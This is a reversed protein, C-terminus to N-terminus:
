QLGGYLLESLRTWSLDPVIGNEGVVVPIIPGAKLCKHRQLAMRLGEEALTDLAISESAAVRKARELVDDSIDFTLQM